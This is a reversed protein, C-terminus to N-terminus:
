ISSGGDVTIVQGNLDTDEFLLMRAIPVINEPEVLRGSPTRRTIAALQDSGLVSSMESAFFGPAISNVLVRGHLERALTRVAADLGGKTAAYTTLGAYGRQAGVSTIMIIRGRGNRRIMTRLVARTLILPATLNTEVIRAIDAPSTQLHMSDQGVAANNILGDIRGLRASAEKVFGTVAAVDTIDVPAVYAHEPFAEALAALEPTITRAFTAVRAGSALVMRVLALGLGRSGGSILVVRAPPVATDAATAPASDTPIMGTRPAAPDPTAVPDSM